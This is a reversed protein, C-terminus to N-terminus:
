KDDQNNRCSKKNSTKKRDPTVTHIGRWSSLTGGNKFHEYREIGRIRREVSLIKAVHRNIKNM